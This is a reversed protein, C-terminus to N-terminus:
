VEVYTVHGAANVTTAELSLAAGAATKFLGRPNSDKLILVNTDGTIGTQMAGTLATGGAGSEWRMTGAVASPVIHYSLVLIAKGTVAAVVAIDGASGSIAAFKVAAETNDAVIVKGIDHVTARQM